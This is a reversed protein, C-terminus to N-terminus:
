PLPRPGTFLRARRRLAWCRGRHPGSNRSLLCLATEFIPKPVQEPPFLLSTPAPRDGPCRPELGVAGGM